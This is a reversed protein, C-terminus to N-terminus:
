ALGQRRLTRHTDGCDVPREQARLPEACLAERWSRHKITTGEPPAKRGGTGRSRRGGQRRRRRSSRATHTVTLHLDVVHKVRRACAHWEYTENRHRIVQAYMENYNWSTSVKWRPAPRTRGLSVALAAVLESSFTSAPHMGGQIRNPLQIPTRDTALDVRTECRCIICCRNSDIM